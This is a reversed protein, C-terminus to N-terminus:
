TSAPTSAAGQISLTATKKREKKKVKLPPTGNRKSEPSSQKTEPEENRQNRKAIGRVAGSEFRGSREFRLSYGQL